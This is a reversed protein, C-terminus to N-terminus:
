ARRLRVALRKVDEASRMTATKKREEEAQQDLKDAEATSDAPKVGANLLWNVALIASFRAEDQQTVEDDSTGDLPKQIAALLKPLAEAKGSRGLELAARSRVFPDQDTLKQEWCTSASCGAALVGRYEKLRATVEAIQKQCDADGIEAEKCEGQLRAPEGALLADYAKLEGGDGVLALTKYADERYGISEKAEARKQAIPLVSKDGIFRLARWYTNRAAVEEDGLMEELPKVAAHSRMRGLADAAQMRTAYQLAAEEDKYSLLKLLDSEAKTDNLDGLIQATKALIAGRLIGHDKAWAMFKPDKGTLDSLLIDTSPKGIEYMAFSSEAFFSVGKREEYLMQHVAPIANPDAIEGLAMIAKKNVFTEISTDTALSSLPKVASPDRLDGLANIAEIVTYNDKSKLLKLLGPTGAKDGLEGLARAIAKNAHNAEETARDSGVGRSLDIADVLAPVASKDGLDGLAEAAKAMVDGPQDKLLTAVQAAAGATKDTKAVAVLHEADAKKERETHENQIKDVWYKVTKPDGHNCGVLGAVLLIGLLKRSSAVRM